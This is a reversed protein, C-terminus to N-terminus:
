APRSVTAKPQEDDSVEARMARRTLEFVFEWDPPADREDALEVADAPQGGTWPVSAM